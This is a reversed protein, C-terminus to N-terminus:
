CCIFSLFLWHSNKKKKISIENQNEQFYGISQSINEIFSCLSPRILDGSYGDLFGLSKYENLLKIGIEFFHRSLENLMSFSAGISFLIFYIVSYLLNNSAYIYTPM